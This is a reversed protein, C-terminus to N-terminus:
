GGGGGGWEEEEISLVFGLWSSAFGEEEEEEEESGRRTGECFPPSRRGKAGMTSVEAAIAMEFAEGEEAGGKKEEEEKEGGEEWCRGGWTRSEREVAVAVVVVVVEVKEGAEWLVVWMSCALVVKVGKIEEERFSTTLLGAAFSEDITAEAVAFIACNWGEM